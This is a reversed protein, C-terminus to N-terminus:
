APVRPFLWTTYAATKNIMDESNEATMHLYAQTGYARKHGLFTSLLPASAYMDVGALDQKRFSHVAFTHRLCHPCINRSYKPLVPKEIDAAELTKNFWFRFKTLSHREGKGNAFLLSNSSTDGLKAIYKSLIDGLVSDMPVLRDMNGKANYIMLSNSDLDVDCIRLGLAENVRLGCGYLIRLLIPFHLSSFTINQNHSLNDAVKFIRKIESETFVYPIYSKDDMPREPIFAEYGLSHLYKAFQTYHSIYVIKTNVNREGQMDALWCEIVSIDLRKETIGKFVLYQDLSRLYHREKSYHHGEARRLDLYSKMEDAFASIFVTDISKKM